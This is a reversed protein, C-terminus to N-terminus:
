IPLAATRCHDLTLFGAPHQYLFYKRIVLEQDYWRGAKKHAAPFIPAKEGDLFASSDHIRFYKELQSGLTGWSVV